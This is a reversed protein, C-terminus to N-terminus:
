TIQLLNEVVPLLEQTLSPQFQPEHPYRNQPANPDFPLPGWIPVSTLNQLFQRNEKESLDEQFTKKAQNLIVGIVSVGKERCRSLTLLTHNLTGLGAHAVILIPLRYRLAFSEVSFHLDNPLLPTLLGGCGEVLLFDGESKAMEFDRDVKVLDVSLRAGKAAM